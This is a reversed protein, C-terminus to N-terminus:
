DTAVPRRYFPLAVVRAPLRTGRVDIEVETGLAALVYALPELWEPAYVGVVQRKM